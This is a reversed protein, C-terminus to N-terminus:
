SGLVTSIKRLTKIFQARERPGVIMDLESEHRKACEHMARMTKRGADTLSLQYSRRDSSTRVRSILGRKVLSELVPTLTSKDSGIARALATQSIGPNRDILILAAFRGPSLGVSQAHRAFSQFSAIQAMRLHFGIWDDFPGFDLSDDAGNRSTTSNETNRLTVTDRAM